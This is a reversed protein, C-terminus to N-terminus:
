DLKNGGIVEVSEGLTVEEGANAAPGRRKSEGAPGVIAGDPGAATGALGEGLHSPLAALIVAPVEPRDPRPEDLLAARCDEKAFLNHNRRTSLPEGMNSRVQFTQTIGDPSGIQRCTADARRVSTRAQIEHSVGAARSQFSEGPIAVLALLGSPEVRSRISWSGRCARKTSVGGAHIGHGQQSSKRQVIWLM